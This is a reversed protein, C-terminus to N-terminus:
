VINQSRFENAKLESEVNESVRKKLDRKLHQECFLFFEEILAQSDKHDIAYEPSIMFSSSRLLGTEEDTVITVVRTGVMQKKDIGCNKKWFPNDDWVNDSESIYQTKIERKFAM